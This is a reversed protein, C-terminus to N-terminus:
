KLYDFLKKSACEDLCHLFDTLEQECTEHHQPFKEVRETCRDLKSKLQACHHHQACEENVAIRQDVIEEAQEEAHVTFFFGM